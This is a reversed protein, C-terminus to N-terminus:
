YHGPQESQAERLEQESAGAAVADQRLRDEFVALEEDPSERLRRLASDKASADRQETAASVARETQSAAEREQEVERGAAQKAEAPFLHEIAKETPVDDASPRRKPV